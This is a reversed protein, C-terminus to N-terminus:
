KKASLMKFQEKLERNENKIQQLDNTLQRVSEDIKKAREAHISDNLSRINRKAIGTQRISEIMADSKKHLEALMKYGPIMQNDGKAFEFIRSDAEVYTRYLKGELLNIDSQTMKIDEIVRATEEKQRAVNKLIDMIQDTYSSRPVFSQNENSNNADLSINSVDINGYKSMVDKLYKSELIEKENIASRIKDEDSKFHHRENEYQETEAKLQELLRNLQESEENLEQQRQEWAEHLSVIKSKTKGVIAELKEQNEKSNPGLLSLLQRRKESAKNETELKEKLMSITKDVEDQQHRIKLVENRTENSESQAIEVEAEMELKRKKLSELEQPNTTLGKNGFFCHLFLSLFNM